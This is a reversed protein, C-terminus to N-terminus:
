GITTISVARPINQIPLHFKCLLSAGGTPTLSNHFEVEALDKDKVVRVRLETKFELNDELLRNLHLVFIGMSYQLLQKRVTLKIFLFLCLGLKILKCKKREWSPALDVLYTWFM